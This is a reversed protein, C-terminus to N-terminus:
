RCLDETKVALREIALQLLHAFLRTLDNGVSPALIPTSVIGDVMAVGMAGLAMQRPVNGRHPM